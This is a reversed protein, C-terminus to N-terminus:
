VVIMGIILAIAVATLVGIYLKQKFTSSWAYYRANNPMTVANAFMGPDFYKDDPRDDPLVFPILNDGDAQLVQYFQNDNYCKQPITILDEAVHEFVVKDPYICLANAPPGKEVKGNGKATPMTTLVPRSSWLMKIAVVAIGMPVVGIAIVVPNQADNGLMMIYGGSVGMIVAILVWAWKPIKTLFNM